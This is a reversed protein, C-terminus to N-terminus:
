QTGGAGQSLVSGQAQGAIIQISENPKSSLEDTQNADVYYLLSCTRYCYM